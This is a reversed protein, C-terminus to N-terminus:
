PAVGRAYILLTRDTDASASADVAHAPPGASVALHGVALDARPSNAVVSVTPVLITSHQVGPM